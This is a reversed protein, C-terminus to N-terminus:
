NTLKLKPACGVCAAGTEWLLMRISVVFGEDAKAASHRMRPRRRAMLRIQVAPRLRRQSLELPHRGLARVPRPLRRMGSLRGAHGASNEVYCGAPCLTTMALLNQSSREQPEIVIHPKGVDVLYRNQYLKEEVRAAELSM